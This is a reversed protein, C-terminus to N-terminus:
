HTQAIDDYDGQLKDVQKRTKRFVLVCAALYFWAFSLLLDFVPFLAYFTRLCAITGGGPYGASVFLAVIVAQESSDTCYNYGLRAHDADVCMAIFTCVAAALTFLFIMKMGFCIIKKQTHLIWTALCGFLWSLTLVAYRWTLCASPWSCYMTTLTSNALADNYQFAYPQESNPMKTCLDKLAGNPDPATFNGTKQDTLNGPVFGWIWLVLTLATIVSFRAILGKRTVHSPCCYKRAVACRGSGGGNGAGVSLSSRTNQVQKTSARKGGGKGGRGAAPDPVPAPAPQAMWNPSNDEADVRPSGPNQMSTVSSPEPPAYAQAPAKPPQAQEFPNDDTAPTGATM